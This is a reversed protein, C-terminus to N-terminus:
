KMISFMQNEKPVVYSMGGGLFLYREGMLLYMCINNDGLLVLRESIPGPEQILM